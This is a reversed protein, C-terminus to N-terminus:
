EDVVYFNFNCRGFQPRQILMSVPRISLILNLVIYLTYIPITMIKRM